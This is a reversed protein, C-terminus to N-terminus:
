DIRQVAETGRTRCELEQAVCCLVRAHELLSLAALRDPAVKTRWAEAMIEAACLAANSGHFLLKETKVVPKGIESSM